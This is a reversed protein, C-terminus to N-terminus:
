RIYGLNRMQQLRNEDSDIRTSGYSDAAVREEWARVKERMEIVTNKQADARNEDEERDDSSYLEESVGTAAPREIFAWERGRAMRHGSPDEGFAMVGAEPEDELWQFFSQGHNPEPLRYGLLNMLSVRLDVLEAPTQIRLGAHNGGPWKIIMPVKTLQRYLKEHHSWGGHEYFEEGHDAILLIMSKDYWGTDRLFGFFEGLMADIYAIEGDYQSLLSQRQDEPLAPWSGDENREPTRGLPNLGEPLFRSKYPEPPIYPAHPEMFHMYCFVQERSQSKLWSTTKQIIRYGRQFDVDSVILETLKELSTNRHFFWDPDAPPYTIDFGQRFGHRHDILQNAFFGATTYGVGRLCEALTLV